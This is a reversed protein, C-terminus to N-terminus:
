SRVGFPRFSRFFFLFSFLFSFLVSRRFSVMGEMADGDCGDCGDSKGKWRVFWVMEFWM